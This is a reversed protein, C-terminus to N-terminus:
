PETVLWTIARGGAVLLESLRFSSMHIRRSLGWFPNDVNSLFLWWHLGENTILLSLFVSNVWLTVVDQLFVCSFYVTSAGVCM